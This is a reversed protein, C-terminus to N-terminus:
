KFFKISRYKQIKLLEQINDIKIGKDIDQEDLIKLFLEREYYKNDDICLCNIKDVSCSKIVDINYKIVSEIYAINYQRNSEPTQYGCTPCNSKISYLLPYFIKSELKLKGLSKRNVDMSKQYLNNICNDDTFLLYKADEFLLGEKRNKFIKGIM